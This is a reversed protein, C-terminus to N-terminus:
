PSQQERQERLAHERCCEAQKLALKQLVPFISDPLCFAPLRLEPFYMPYFLQEVQL